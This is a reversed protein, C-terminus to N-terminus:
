WIRIQVSDVLVPDKHPWSRHAQFRIVCGFTPDLLNERILGSNWLNDSSGYIKVPDILPTILNDGILNENLVLQVTEDQARGYRRANLQVEIGSIILPLDYFHYGTCRLFYTKNKVNPKPSRAIHYLSEMTQLSRGDFSKLEAFNNASNWAVDITEAGIEPYQTIVTPLTWPTPM